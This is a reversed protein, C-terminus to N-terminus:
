KKIIALLIMGIGVAIMLVNGWWIQALGTQAGMAGLFSVLQDFMIPKNRNCAAVLLM